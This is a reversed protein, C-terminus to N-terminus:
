RAYMSVGGDAALLRFGHAVLARRARTECRRASPSSGYLAGHVAVYRVGLRELAATGGTWDGCTLPQLRRAMADAAPPALTSYGGARGRPAEIAHHLYVSGEQRDPLYVPLELLRGPPAEALRAYAANRSDAATPRFLEVGLRLDLAVVVLVGAALAPPRVADVALAVLAALCLCAIPVLREPVRTEHLGPLHRWLPEYLPVNAGLALVLPVVAGVGLVAALDFRRRAVLVAVGCLAVLPTLWGLFVFSEIGHRVDRSAFDALDASYREVQAFSRGGAGVSGRVAWLWVLVGGAAAGLAAGLEGGGLRRRMAAYLLFFPVAGLALHVQGSLPISALAAGAVLPRRREVGWLSLPLLMSTAALLHGAASQAVLYPALAFTAAGAIAPMRGLGLAALWLFALTGAGAFALLVFANWARVTGLLAHLPWYAPGFPWAAPNPQEGALPAFSYPDQWPM